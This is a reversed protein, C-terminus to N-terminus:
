YMFTSLQSRGRLICVKIDTEGEMDVYARTLSNMKVEGRHMLRLRNM